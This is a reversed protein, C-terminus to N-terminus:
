QNTQSRIKACYPGIGAAISKPNDLVKGCDCCIGTRRGIDILEDDNLMRYTGTKICGFLLAKDSALKIDSWGPMDILRKRISRVQEDNNKTVISIKFIYKDEDDIYVGEWVGEGYPDYEPDVKIRMKEASLMQKETLGGHTLCYDYLSQAFDSWTQLMLWGGMSDDKILKSTGPRVHNTPAIRGSASVWKNNRDFPM